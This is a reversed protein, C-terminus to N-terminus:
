IKFIRKIKGAISRLQKKGFKSLLRFLTKYVEEIAGKMIKPASKKVQQGGQNIIQQIQSPKNNTKNAQNILKNLQTM